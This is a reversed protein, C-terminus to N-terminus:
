MCMLLLLCYKIKVYKISLSSPIKHKGLNFAQLDQFHNLIVEHRLMEFTRRQMDEYFHLKRNECENLKRRIVKLLEM